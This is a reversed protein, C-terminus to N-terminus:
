NKISTKTHPKQELQDVYDVSGLRFRMNLKSNRAVSEEFRCFLPLKNYDYVLPMKIKSDLKETDLTDLSIIISNFAQFDYKKETLKFDLQTMATENQQAAIASCLFILLSFSLLKISSKRKKLDKM